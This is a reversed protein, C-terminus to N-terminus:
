VRSKFQQFMNDFAIMTEQFTEKDMGAAEMQSLVFAYLREVIDQFEGANAALQKNGMSLYWEMKKFYDTAISTLIPLAKEKEGVAIFAKAIETSYCLFDHSRFLM